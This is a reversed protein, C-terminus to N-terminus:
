CRGCRAIRGTRLFLVVFVDDSEVKWLSVREPIAGTLVARVTRNEGDQHCRLVAMLFANGASANLLKHLLCTVSRITSPM